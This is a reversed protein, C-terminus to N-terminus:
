VSRLMIVKSAHSVIIIFYSVCVFTIDLTFSDNYLLVM